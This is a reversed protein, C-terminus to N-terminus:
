MFYDFDRESRVRRRIRFVHAPVKNPDLEIYNAGAHWLYRSDAILDHM